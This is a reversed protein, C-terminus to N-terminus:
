MSQKAKVTAIRIRLASLQAELADRTNMDLNQNLLKHEIEAKTAEYTALQSSLSASRQYSNEFVVREVATDGVKTLYKVFLGILGITLIVTLFLPFVKWLTWRAEKRIYNVEKRYDSM